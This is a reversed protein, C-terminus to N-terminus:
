YFASKRNKILFELRRAATGEPVATRWFFKRGYARLCFQHKRLFDSNDDRACRPIEEYFSIILLLPHKLNRTALEESHCNSNEAKKRRL